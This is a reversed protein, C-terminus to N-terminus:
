IKELFYLVGAGIVGGFVGWWFGSYLAWNAFSSAQVGSAALYIFYGAVESLAAGTFIALWLEIQEELSWRLPNM